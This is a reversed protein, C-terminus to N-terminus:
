PIAYGLARLQNLELEGLERRPAEGWSPTSEFQAEASARLQDVLEPDSSSLDTLEAPDTESNFLEESLVQDTGEKPKKMVYRFPGETVAVHFRSANETQGWTEDLFSIGRTDSTSLTEGKAAALIEPVRSIGDVDDLPELGVLELVTPWVDVNQSRTPVVLGPELKFPFFLFFPIETTERYVARAHGEIGRERFAEGHDATLVVLTKEALGFDAMYEFLLHLTEDTWRISNDYMDSHTGGFLASEEDYLFEHVDMLHLYLFWRRDHGSVRLFEIAAAVTDEDTGAQTLTPNARRVTPDPRSRPARTYVEFGQEFGFTPAVWGNRYLGVTRYGAELFREAPMIAEESVMHDYRTVGTRTPYLGTWLSAMSAKTWTSQALHREFRVGTQAMRQLTPSTERSYGYASLRDARLTDILIFMVNLDERDALEVIDQVGGVPRNDTVPPEFKIASSLLWLVILSAAVLWPWNKQLLTTAMFLVIVWKETM